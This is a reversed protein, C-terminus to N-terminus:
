RSIEEGDGIIWVREVVFPYFQGGPVFIKVQITEDTIENYFYCNYARKDNAAKPPQTGYYKMGGVPSPNGLILTRSVTQYMGECVVTVTVAGYNVYRIGVGRVTTQGEVSGSKTAQEFDEVKFDYECDSECSRTIDWTLLDVVATNNLKRGGVLVAFEYGNLGPASAAM